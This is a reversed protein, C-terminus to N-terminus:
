HIGDIIGRENKRKEEVQEVLSHFWAEDKRDIAMNILETYDNSLLSNGWLKVNDRHYVSEHEERIYVAELNHYYIVRVKRVYVYKDIIGTVYGFVIRDFLHAKVWDGIKM